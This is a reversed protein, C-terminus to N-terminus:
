PFKIGLFYLLKELDKNHFQRSSGKVIMGTVIIDDVYVILIM